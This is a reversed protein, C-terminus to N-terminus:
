MQRGCRLGIGDDAPDVCRQGVHARAVHPGDGCMQTVRVIRTGRSQSVALPVLIRVVGVPPYQCLLVRGVFEHATVVVLGATMTRFAREGITYGFKTTSNTVVTSTKTVSPTEM